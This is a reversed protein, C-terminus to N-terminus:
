VEDERRPPCETIRLDDAQLLAPGGVNGHTYKLCQMGLKGIERQMWMGYVLQASNEISSSGKNDFLTPCEFQGNEKDAPRLRQSTIIGVKGLDNMLGKFEEAIKSLEEGRMLGIYDIEICGIEEGLMQEEADIRERVFQMDKAGCPVLRIHSLDPMSFPRGLAHAAAVQEVSVGNHLACWREGVTECGLELDFVMHKVNNIHYLINMMTRSKGVGTGSMLCVLDGRRAKHKFSPIWMSMDLLNFDGRDMLDLYKNYAELPSVSIGAEFGRIWVEARREGKALLEKTKEEGEVELYDAIDHGTFKRNKKVWTKPLSIIRAEKIRGRLDEMVMKLWKQGEEDADPMIVLSKNELHKGYDFEPKWEGCGFPNCTAVCGLSTLADACKEGEVIYITEGITNAIANLNYLVRDKSKLGYKGDKFPKCEKKGREPNWFRVIEYKPKGDESLYKYRAQEELVPASRRTRTRTQREAPETSDTGMKGEIFAVAEDVSKLNDKKQIFSIVDGTAECGACKFGKGEVVRFKTPNDGECFPCAMRGRTLALGYWSQIVHTISLNDRIAQCRERIDTM